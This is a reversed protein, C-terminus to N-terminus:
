YFDRGALEDLWIDKLALIDAKFEEMTQTEGKRLEELAEFVFQGSGKNWDSQLRPDVCSGTILSFEFRNKIGHLDTVAGFLLKNNQTNRIVYVGGVIERDKYKAALEKKTQNDKM